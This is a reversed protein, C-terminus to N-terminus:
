VFSNEWSTEIKGVNWRYFSEWRPLSVSVLKEFTIFLALVALYYKKWNHQLGHFINKKERSRCFFSVAFIISIKFHKEPAEGSEEQRRKRKEQLSSLCECFCRLLDLSMTLKWPGVTRELRLCRLNVCKRVSLFDRRRSEFCIIPWLDELGNKRVANAAMSVVTLDESRTSQSFISNSMKNKM